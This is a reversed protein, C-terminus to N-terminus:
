GASSSDRAPCRYAHNEFVVEFGMSEYLGVARRNAADTWLSGTTVLYRDHQLQLGASVLGRGLGSGAFDPDVGIVYVEGVGEIEHKTWCFGALRDGQWAVVVDDERFWPMAFRMGLETASIDGAERHGAFSRNNVERLSEAHKEVRFPRVEFRAPIAFQRALPLDVQMQLLTRERVGGVGEVISILEPTWAWVQTSGALSECVGAIAKSVADEYGGRAVIEIDYAGHAHEAAQIYAVWRGGDIAAWEHVASTGARTAKYESLVPRSSKRQEDALFHAVAASDSESLTHIQAPMAMISTGGRAALYYGVVVL